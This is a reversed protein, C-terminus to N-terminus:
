WDRMARKIDTVIGQPEPAKREPPRENGCDEVDNKHNHMSRSQRSTIVSNDVPSQFPEFPWLDLLPTNYVQKGQDTVDIRTGDGKFIIRSRGWKNAM